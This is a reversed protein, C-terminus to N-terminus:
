RISWNDGLRLVRGSPASLRAQLKEAVLLPIKRTGKIWRYVCNPTVPVMSALKKVNLRNEEMLTVLEDSTM